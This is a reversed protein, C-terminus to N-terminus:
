GADEIRLSYGGSGEDASLELVFVIDEDIEIDQFGVLDGPGDTALENDNEDFVTLAVDVGEGEAIFSVVDGASLNVAYRIRVGDSINGSVVDGLVLEGGDIVEAGPGVHAVRDLALGAAEVERGGDGQLLLSGDDADDGEGLPAAEDGLGVGDVAVEGVLDEVDLGLGEHLVVALQDKLAFCPHSCQFIPPKLM